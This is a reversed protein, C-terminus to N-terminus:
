RRVWKTGGVKRIAGDLELLTLYGQLEHSKCSLKELIVEQEQPISTLINYLPSLHPAPIYDKKQPVTAVGMLQLADEPRYLLAAEGSQILTNTGVSRESFIDGPFAGVEKGLELALEATILSGSKKAAEVVILADSLAAIIRNRLPFHYPEPKTGLPFDSILLGGEHVIHKALPIHLAPYITDVAGGLVAITHGKEQLTKKHAYADVGLALGSIVSFQAQVLPPILMDLIRTGYATMHRSGVIGYSPKTLIEQNGRTYLVYPNPQVQQLIPPFKPDTELLMHISTRKMYEQMDLPIQTKKKECAKGIWEEKVGIRRLVSPSLDEWANKWQHAYLEGLGRLRTHTIGPLQHLLALYHKM